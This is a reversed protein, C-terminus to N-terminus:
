FVIAAIIVVQKLILHAPMSLRLLSQVAPQIIRSEFGMATSIIRVQGSRGQPRTQRRYFVYQNKKGSTFRGPLARQDGLGMLLLAM